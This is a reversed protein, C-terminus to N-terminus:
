RRQAHANLPHPLADAVAQARGRSLAINAAEDGTNDTHGAITVQARPYAKLIVAVNALQARSASGLRMMIKIVKRQNMRRIQSLTAMSVLIM